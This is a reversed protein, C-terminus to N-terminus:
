PRPWRPVSVCVVQCKILTNEKHQELGARALWDIAREEAEQKTVGAFELGATVNGHQRWPFLAEGQFM